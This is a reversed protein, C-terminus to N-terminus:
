RVVEEPSRLAPSYTYSVGAAADWNIWGAAMLLDAAESDDNAASRHVASPAVQCCCRCVHCM